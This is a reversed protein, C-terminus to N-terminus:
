GEDSFEEDMDNEDIDEEEVHIFGNEEFGFKFFNYGNGVYGWENIIYTDLNDLAIHFLWESVAEKGGFRNEVEKRLEATYYHRKARHDVGRENHGEDIWEHLEKYDKGTRKKSIACHVQNKPM